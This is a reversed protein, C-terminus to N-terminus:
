ESPAAAPHPQDHFPLTLEVVLGSEAGNRLELTARDGYLERLRSRTNTLGIGERNNRAASIGVGNDHVALHLVAGDRRATIRLEGAQRSPELGHRVSNEVLPQLIMAPVQAALTDAPIQKEIRLRDGFRVQEIALYRDLFDLEQRLPVEQQDATELTLRLFDALNGLMEDAARADRHVLTSIANLTNFLFHPQLQMRLAQLKARALGATLELAKREREQSRRYFLLTHAVSVVAWYIPLNFWTRPTVGGGPLLRRLDRRNPDRRDSMDPRTWPPPEERRPRDPPRRQALEHANPLGEPELFHRLWECAFLTIGGAALHVALSVPWRGRELPFQLALALVLPSLVAWPLWDRITIRLAEPWAFSGNFVLQAASACGLVSWVVVSGASGLLLSRIQFPARM